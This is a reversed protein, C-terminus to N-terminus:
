LGHSPEPSALLRNGADAGLVDQEPQDALALADGRLHQDPQASVQVPDALLDDLQQM